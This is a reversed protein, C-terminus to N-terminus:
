LVEVKKMKRDALMPNGVPVEPRSSLHPGSGNSLHPGSGSLLRPGSGNSLRPGSENSLYQVPLREPLRGYSEQRWCSISALCCRSYDLLLIFRVFRRFRQCIEEFFKGPGIQLFASDIAIGQCHEQSGLVKRNM